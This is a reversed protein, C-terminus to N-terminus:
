HLTLSVGRTANGNQEETELELVKEHSSSCADHMQLNVIILKHSNQASNSLREKGKFRDTWPHLPNM